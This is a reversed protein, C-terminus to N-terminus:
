YKRKLLYHAAWYLVLMLCVACSAAMSLLEQGAIRLVITSVACILIFIYGAWGWAKGRIFSNREDGIETEVKERYAEDKSFRRLRVLRLVAVAMLSGGMGSWFEDVIGACGLGLLLVGFIMMFIYAVTRRGSNM